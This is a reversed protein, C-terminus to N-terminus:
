PADKLARISAVVGRLIRLAVMADANTPQHFPSHKDAHAEIVRSFAECMAQLDHGGQVQELADARVLSAFRVLFPLLSFKDGIVVMGAERAMEAVHKDTNVHTGYTTSEYSALIPALHGDLTPLIHRLNNIRLGFSLMRMAHV